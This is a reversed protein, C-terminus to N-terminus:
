MMLYHWPELEKHIHWPGSGTKKIKAALSYRKNKEKAATKEEINITSYNRYSTM